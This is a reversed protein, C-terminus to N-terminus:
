LVISLQFSCALQKSGEEARFLRTQAMRFESSVRDSASNRIYLFWRLGEEFATYFSLSEMLSSEYISLRLNSNPVSFRVFGSGFKWKETTYLIRQQVLGSTLNGHNAAKLNIRYQLESSLKENLALSFKTIKDYAPPDSWIDAPIMPGDLLSSLDFQWDRHKTRIYIQAKQRYVRRIQSIATTKSHMGVDLLYRIGVGKAPLVQARFSVGSENPAASGMLRLISGSSNEGVNLLRRYQASLRLRKSTFSWNFMGGDFRSNNGIGYAQLMHNGALEWSLGIEGLTSHLNLPSIKTALYLQLPSLDYVGALGLMRSKEESYIKGAQHIGDSDERFYGADSQGILNRQSIFAVGRMNKSTWEGAVGHLFDTERSSFHPTISLRPRRALSGPNYSARVGQQNILLGSGWSVHYDGVIISTFGPIETSSLTFVAHDTLQAEGPDQEMVFVLNGWLSSVHGKHLIRWGELSPSYQFRHRIRGHITQDVGFHSQELLQLDQGDFKKKLRNFGRTTARKSQWLLISKIAEDSYGYANLATSDASELHQPTFLYQILRDLYENEDPDHTEDQFPIVDDQGFLSIALVIILCLSKM